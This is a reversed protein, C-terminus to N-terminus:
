VGSSESSTPGQAEGYREFCAFVLPMLAAVAVRCVAATALISPSDGFMIGAEDFVELQAEPDKSAVGFHVGGKVHSCYKILDGVSAIARGDKILVPQALFDDLTIDSRKDSLHPIDPSLWLMSGQRFAAEPIELGHIGPPFRIALRLDRNVKHALPEADLLLQRLLGAARTIGYATQAHLKSEIDRLTELLFTHPQPWNMSPQGTPVPQPVRSSPSTATFLAIAPAGERYLPVEEGNIELLPEDRVVFALALRIQGDCVFEIPHFRFQREVQSATHRQEVVISGGTDVWATIAWGDDEHRMIEARQAPPWDHPWAIALVVTREPLLNAQM